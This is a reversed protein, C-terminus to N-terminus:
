LSIGGAVTLKATLADQADDSLSDIYGIKLNASTSVLGFRKELSVAGGIGYKDLEGGKLIQDFSGDFTMKDFFGKLLTFRADYGFKVDTGAASEWAHEFALGLKYRDYQMATDLGYSFKWGSNAAADGDVLTYLLFADKTKAGATLIFDGFRFRGSKWQLSATNTLTTDNKASDPFGLAESDTTAWEFEYGFSLSGVRGVSPTDVGVSATHTVNAIDDETPATEDSSGLFLPLLEGFIIDPVNDKQWDYGLTVQFDGLPLDWSAGIDRVGTNVSAALSKYAKDTKRFWLEVGIDQVKLDAGYTVGWLERNLAEVVLGATIPFYDLVPFYGHVTKVYELYPAIDFDFGDKIDTALKDIDIIESADPNYLTLGGGLSLSFYDNDSGLSLGLILNQEPAVDDLGYLVGIDSVGSVSIEDYRGQLSSIFSLNTQLYVYDLADLRLRLGFFNQPWAAGYLGPDALGKAVQLDIFPIDFSLSTGRFPFDKVTDSQFSAKQDGFSYVLIPDFLAIRVLFSNSNYYYRPEEDTWDFEEDFNWPNWLNMINQFDAILTNPYADLIEFVSISDALTAQLDATLPGAKLRAEGGVKFDLTVDHEMDAFVEGIDLSDANEGMTLEYKADLSATYDGKAAFFPQAEKSVAFTVIEKSKNGFYDTMSITVTAKSKNDNKPTVLFSLMNQFVAAKEILTKDYEVQFEKIGSEDLIEFVVLQEKGKALRPEMPSKMVLDPPTVDHVIRAKLKGIAPYRLFKGQATQVQAYYSFEEGKLYVYPILASWVGDKQEFPAYLPEEKGEQMFYFRGQDIVMGEDLTLTVELNRYGPIENPVPAEFAWAGLVVLCSLLAAITHKKM